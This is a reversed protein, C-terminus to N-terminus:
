RPTIIRSVVPNSGPFVLVERMGCIRFARDPAAESACKSRGQSATSQFSSARGRMSSHGFAQLRANM